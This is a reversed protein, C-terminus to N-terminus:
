QEMDKGTGPLNIREQRLRSRLRDRAVSLRSHVTGEHLDLMRAIEPTSFGQYYHLIIPLRHKEGLANVAQRVAAETEHAVTADEASVAPERGLSWLTHLAKVLRERSRRRKLSNRCINITIAYLWTTLAAEGRYADLAKLATLIVEQATEEAEVSDELISLALRTILPHYENVLKEIAQPDGNKCLDLLQMTEMLSM